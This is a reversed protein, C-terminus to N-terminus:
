EYTNGGEIMQYKGYLLRSKIRHQVTVNFLDSKNYCIGIFCFLFVAFYKYYEAVNRKKIYSNQEYGTYCAHNVQM